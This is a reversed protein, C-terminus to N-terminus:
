DVRTDDLTSRQLTIADSDLEIPEVNPVTEAAPDIARRGHVLRRFALALGGFVAFAMAVCVALAAVPLQERRVADAYLMLTGRDCRERLDMAGLADWAARLRDRQAPMERAVERVVSAIDAPSADRALRQRFPRLLADLHGYAVDAASELPIALPASERAVWTLGSRGSGDAVLRAHLVALDALHRDGAVSGSETALADAGRALADASGQREGALALIRAHLDAIALPDGVLEVLEDAQRLRLEAHGDRGRWAAVLARARAVIREAATEAEASHRLVSFAAAVVRRQPSSVSLEASLLAAAQGELRVRAAPDTVFAQDQLAALADERQREAALGRLWAIALIIALALWVGAVIRATM